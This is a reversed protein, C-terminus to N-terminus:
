HNFQYFVGIQGTRSKLNGIRQYAEKIINSIGMNYRADFGFGSPTLYGVGFVWSFKTKNYVDANLENNVLIGLQPGSEVRFGNGALYQALVPVNVYDLKYDFTRGAINSKYGEKSYLVEPQIAWKKNLHVHAMIGFHYGTSTKFSSDADKNESRVKSVNMGGKVGFEFRQAYMLQSLTVAIAM